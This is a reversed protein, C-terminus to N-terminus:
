HLKLHGLSAGLSLPMSSLQTHLAAALAPGRTMTFLPLQQLPTSSGRQQRIL